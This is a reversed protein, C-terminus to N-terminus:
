VGFLELLFDDPRDQGSEAFGGAGDMEAQRDIDGAGWRLHRRQGAVQVLEDVHRRRHVCGRDRFEVFLDQFRSFDAKHKSFPRAAGNAADKRQGQAEVCRHDGCGKPFAQDAREMALKTAHQAHAPM